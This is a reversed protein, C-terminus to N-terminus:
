DQAREAQLDTGFFQESSKGRTKNLDQLFLLFVCQNMVQTFGYAKTNPCVRVFMCIVWLKATVAAM